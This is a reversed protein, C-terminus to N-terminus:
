ADPAPCLHLRVTTGGDVTTSVSGDCGTVIWNVLWLGLGTGHELPTEEGTELLTREHKPLGPGNDSIEVIVDGDDEAVRYTVPSVNGYKAANEGIETLAVRLRGTALVAPVSEADLRFAVDPFERQLDEIVLAIDETVSRPAVSEESQIIDKLTRAKNSLRSLEDAKAEIRGAIEPVDGETREAIVDALGAVATMDNRINHRLVRELVEILENRRDKAKTEDIIQQKYESAEIERGLLRALLEVFLKEDTTFENERADRSIFCVTGYVDGSVFITTGLYCDFQYKRYAPDDGWGQEPVNSLVVPSQEEITRRCYSTAREIEDGVQLRDITEGASCVITDTDSSPEYRQMYAHDVDLYSRGLSLARRQKEDITLTEDNLIEYL